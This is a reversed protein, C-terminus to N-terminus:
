ADRRKLLVTGALLGAASWVLCILVGIWAGYPPTGGFMPNVDGPPVMANIGAFAPFYNMAAPLVYSSMLLPLPLLLVIMVVLTGAASRLTFAIGACLVGLFAFYAGMGLATLLGEGFTTPLGRGAMLVKAIVMGVAAVVVGFGFLVPALVAAKAASVRPRVPVWQLTSRISGSTYESTVFLTAVTIVCFEVLYVAGTVVIGHAAQPRDGSFQQSSGSVVAYFAMLLAGGALCWWTARVSWFKTWEAAIAFKTM